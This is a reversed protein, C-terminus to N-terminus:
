TECTFNKRLLETLQEPTNRTPDEIVMEILFRIAAGVIASPKSSVIAGIENGDLALDKPYLPPRSKQITKVRSVFEGEAAARMVRSVVLTTNALEPTVRKMWHRIREDDWHEFGEYPIINDLIKVVKESTDNPFTLKKMITLIESTSADEFQSFFLVLRGLLDGWGYNAIVEGARVSNITFGPFISNLLGTGYLLNMGVVPFSSQIIKSFEERVRERSVKEFTTLCFNIAHLTNEEIEFGLKSAFRVARLCRLGDENFREVPSGVAKIIKKQLDSYGGFPDYILNSIPSYAMANITFDRRELDTDLNTEFKVSDPRRGDTYTGESRFTTVEVHQSFSVVTVTGHKLGTPITEPFISQVQEPTASTAIDYDKPDMGLINDRVCGGVYYAWFGANALTRLVSESPLDHKWNSWKYYNM